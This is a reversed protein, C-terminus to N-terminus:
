PQWQGRHPNCVRVQRGATEQAAHSLLWDDCRYSLRPPILMRSGEVGLEGFKGLLAEGEASEVYFLQGPYPEYRDRGRGRVARAAIAATQTNQVSHVIYANLHTIDSGDLLHQWAWYSWYLDSLKRLKPLEDERPERGWRRRAMEAASKLNIGFIVTLFDSISSLRLDSLNAPPKGGARTDM